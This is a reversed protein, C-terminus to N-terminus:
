QGYDFYLKIENSDIDVGVTTLPMDKKRMLAVIDNIKKTKDGSFNLQKMLDELAGLLKKNLDELHIKQLNCEGEPIELYIKRTLSHGEDKNLNLACLSQLKYKKIIAFVILSKDGVIKIFHDQANEFYLKLESYKNSKEANKSVGLLSLKSHMNLIDTHVDNFGLKLFLRKLAINTLKGQKNKFMPRIETGKISCDILEFGFLSMINLLEDNINISM